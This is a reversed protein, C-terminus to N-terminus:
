QQLENVLADFITLMDGTTKRLRGALIKAIVRTVSLAIKPHREGLRWFDSKSLVLFESADTAVITASRVDDDILAMEGFFVNDEARLTVVTYDDGARTKRRIVVRGSLMIYMEEGKEGETIVTQGARVTQVSAIGQVENLYEENARIESFLPIDKLKQLVEDSM